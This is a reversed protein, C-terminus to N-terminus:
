RTGAAKLADYPEKFESDEFDKALVCAIRM